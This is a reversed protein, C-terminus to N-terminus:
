GGYVEFETVSNWGSTTNGRAELKVYRATKNTIFTMYDGSGVVSNGSYIVEYNEGDESSYVTFPIYRNDNYKMFALKIKGITKVEGLDYTLSHTGQSTWATSLNGDLANKAGNNAEPEATATFSVPTLKGMPARASDNLGLPILKNVKNWYFLGVRYGDFSCNFTITDETLTSTLSVPKGEAFVLAGDKNYAAAILVGEGENEDYDLFTVNKGESSVYQVFSEAKVATVTYKLDTLSPAVKIYGAGDKTVWYRLKTFSMGNLPFVKTYKKLGDSGAITATCTGSDYDFVMTVFWTTSSRNM